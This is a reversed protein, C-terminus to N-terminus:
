KACLYYCGLWVRRAEAENMTSEPATGDIGKRTSRKGLGLDLAMIAASHVIQLFNLEKSQRPRQYHVVLVLLAQILEVSKEGRYMVRDAMIQTIEDILLPRLDPRVSGAAVALITHFLIPKTRRIYEPKTTYSFVVFPFYQSM